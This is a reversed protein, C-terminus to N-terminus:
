NKPKGAKTSDPKGERRKEQKAKLAQNMKKLKEESEAKIRTMDGTFTAYQEKNLLQQLSVNRGARLQDFQSRKISPELQGNQLLTAAQQYYAENLKGLEEEQKKNLKLRETMAATEKGAFYKYSQPNLAAPGKEEQAPKQQASASFLIISLCATILYTIIKNM